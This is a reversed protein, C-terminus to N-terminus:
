LKITYKRDFDGEFYYDLSLVSEDREVRGTNEGNGNNEDSGNDAQNGAYEYVISWRTTWQGEPKRVSLLAKQVQDKDMIGETEQLIQQLILYREQANEGGASFDGKALNFNTVCPTEVVIIEGEVFEVSVSRGTADALSLHHSIGGSAYIDYQKLLAIAEEVNAARNLLLRIAMTLTVDPKETDVTVMGGENVELDAVCLGKENIGDMPVYYSAVALFKNGMSELNSNEDGTINGFECTAISRYGKEPISKVVIPTSKDWDFNRGWLLHGDSTRATITSCGIETRYEGEPKYFGHSIYGALVEALEDDSKIEKQLIEDMHYDTHFTMEYFPNDKEKQISGIIQMEERFLHYTGFLFIVLLVGIGALIWKGIKRKGTKAKKM